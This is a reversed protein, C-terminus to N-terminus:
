ADCIMCQMTGRLHLRVQTYYVCISIVGTNIRNAKLIQLQWYGSKVLMLAGVVTAGLVVIGLFMGIENCRENPVCALTGYAESFGSMCRGCLRGERNGGCSAISTCPWDTSEDGICCYGDPCRIFTM